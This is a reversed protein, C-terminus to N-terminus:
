RRRLAARKTSAPATSRIESKEVVFLVHYEPVIPQDLGLHETHLIRLGHAHFTREWQRPSKFTYPVNVDDHLVRNYFWDIIRCYRHQGGGLAAFRRLTPDNDPLDEPRVGFVSEILVIRRRSVRAANALVRSPDDAHHLVTLLLVTDFSGADFPLDADQAVAFFPLDRAETNYDLVDVLTVDFGARDLLRAVRGDGCGLDLVRPGLVHPRIQQHIRLARDEFKDGVRRAIEYRELVKKLQRELALDSAPTSCVREIRELAEAREPAPLGVAALVRDLEERVFARTRADAFDAAIAGSRQSGRPTSRGLGRKPRQSGTSLDSTPM